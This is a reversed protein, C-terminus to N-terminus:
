DEGQIRELFLFFEPLFGVGARVLGPIALFRDNEAEFRFTEKECGERIDCDRM